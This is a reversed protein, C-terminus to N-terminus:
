NQQNFLFILLPLFDVLKERLIRLAKGMQNEITKISLGLKDAIEQYKLEEFRSMQFITRCQEPLEQLAQDLQRQLEGLQLKGTAPFRNDEQRSLAFQRYASRVQQHKLHNLCENYVSRYLYATASQRIDLSEKKEWLRVFVNQVMEEALTEEKVMSLAYAHLSKFHSKFVAEFGQIGEDTNLQFVGPTPLAM